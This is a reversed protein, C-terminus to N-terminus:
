CSGMETRYPTSSLSLSVRKKKVEDYRRESETKYTAPDVDDEHSSERAERSGTDGQISSEGRKVLANKEPSQTHDLDIKGSKTSSKKKKKKQVKAGKLKLAGGGVVAYDYDSPM